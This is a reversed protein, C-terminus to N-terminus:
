RFDDPNVWVSEGSPLEVFFLLTGAAGGALDERVVRGQERLFVYREGNPGLTAKARDFTITAEQPLFGYRSLNPAFAICSPRVCRAVVRAPPSPPPAAPPTAPSYPYREIFGPTPPAPPTPYPYREIFGGGGPPAPPVPPAPISVSLSPAGIWGNVEGAATTYRVRYFSYQGDPTPVYRVHLLGSGVRETELNVAVPPGLVEVRTGPGVRLSGDNVQAYSRWQLHNDIVYPPLVQCGDANHCTGAGTAPMAIQGTWTGLSAGTIDPLAGRYSPDVAFRGERAAAASYRRYLADIAVQPLKGGRIAGQWQAFLTPADTPAAYPPAGPTVRGARLPPGPVNTAFVTLSDADIWGNGEGWNTTYRVRYYRYRGAPTSVYRVHLPGSGVREEELDVTLPPGLVTVREGGGIWQSGTNLQALRRWELRNQGMEGMAYPPLVQCGRADRCEAENAVPMQGTWTGPYIMMPDNQAALVPGALDFTGLPARVIGMSVPDSLLSREVWGNVDGRPGRFRVRVYKWRARPHPIFHVVEQGEVYGPAIALDIEEFSEFNTGAPAMESDYFLQARSFRSTTRRDDKIIYPPYM